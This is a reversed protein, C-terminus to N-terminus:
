RTTSNSMMSIGLSNLAAQIFRVGVGATGLRYVRTKADALVGALAALPNGPTTATPTLATAQYGATPVLMAGDFRGVGVTGKRCGYAAGMAEM